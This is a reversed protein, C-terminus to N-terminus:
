GIKREAEDPREKLAEQRTMSQDTQRRATTLKADEADKASGSLWWLWSRRKM